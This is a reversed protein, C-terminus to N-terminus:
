FQCNKPVFSEKLINSKSGTDLMFTIHTASKCFKVQVTPVRSHKDLNVAVSRTELADKDVPNKSINIPTLDM